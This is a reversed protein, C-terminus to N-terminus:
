NLGFRIPDYLEITYEIHVKGLTTSAPGFGSVLLYGDSGWNRRFAADSTVLAAAWDVTDMYRNEKMRERPFELSGEEWATLMISPRFNVITDIDGAAGGTNIGIGGANTPFVDGMDYGFGMSVNGAVTTGVTPIYTVRFKTFKFKSYNQAVSGLWTFFTPAVPFITTYSATNLITSVSSIIETNTIVTTQPQFSMARSVGGPIDGNRRRTGNLNMVVKKKSTQKQNKKNNNKSITMTNSAVHSILSNM